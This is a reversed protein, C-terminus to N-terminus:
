WPVWLFFVEDKDLNLKTRAPLRRDVHVVKRDVSTSEIGLLKELLRVYTEGQFTVTIPGAIVTEAACVNNPRSQTQLNTTEVAARAVGRGYSDSLIRQKFRNFIYPTTHPKTSHHKTTDRLQTGLDSMGKQMEKTENVAVPGRKNAYDHAYGCQSDQAVQAAYVLDADNEDCCGDGVCLEDNHTAPTIPIRYPVQVDSNCRMSVLLAPHTQNVWEENREGKMSGIANRAGKTPLDCQEAIGRCVVAPQKLTRAEGDRPYRSKCKKPDDKCKCHTLPKRVGDDGKIHVHHQRLEQVRQIDARYSEAYLDGRFFSPESMYTPKSLLTSRNAYEPWEDERADRSAHAAEIDDYTTKCVHNVYGLYEAVITNQKIDRLKRFIDYLPMHQHLCQIFLQLHLHLAGAKQNEISGFVADARGFVGGLVTASSGRRDQCPPGKFNESNCDPCYPCIRVGFVHCLVLRCLVRFGDSCCLPDRAVISRRTKFDPAYDCLDSVDFELEAFDHDISPTDQRLWRGSGDEAALAPDCERVRALRIMLLSDKENPSFTVFISQGYVISYSWLRWRMLRRVEQTGEVRMSSHTVAGLLKKAAATLGQCRWVKTMDGAVKKNKGDYDTYTGSCLCHLIQKAGQEADDATLDALNKNSLQFSKTQNVTTRFCLNWMAFGLLWDRGCHSEVRRSMAKCWPKLEVMPADRPRGSGRPPADNAPETGLRPEQVDGALEMGPYLERMAGAPEAGLRAEASADVGRLPQREEVAQSAEERGIDPMGAGYKFVFPFASAFFSPKFQDILANGTRAVYEPLMDSVRLKQIQDFLNAHTDAGIGMALLAEADLELLRRGDVGHEQLTNGIGDSLHAAAWDKVESATWQAVNGLRDYGDNKMPRSSAARQLDSLRQLMDSQPEANDSNEAISSVTQRLSSLRQENIDAVDAGSREQLVAHPRIDNFASQATTRGEVPTAAKQPRLKDISGDNGLVAFLQPPVADVPLVAARKHVEREDVASYAPHGRAKADLILKVVVARRVRAAYICSKLMSTHDGDEAASTKLLVRVLDALEDGTRPVQARREAIDEFQELLQEWPLPFCTVNGRAGVRHRNMNVDTGHMSGFRYELSFCIMCTYCVSACIMEMVTIGGEYLTTHGTMDKINMRTYYESHPEGIWMGNALAQAPLRKSQVSKHCVRCIPINCDLCLTRPTVERSCSKCRIDEPCCMIHMPESFADSSFVCTWRQLEADYEDMARQTQLKPAFRTKYTQMGYNDELEAESMTAIPTDQLTRYSIDKATESAIFAYKQACFFCVITSVNEDTLANSWDKLCRRDIQPCAIPAQSQCKMSVAECYVLKRLEKGKHAKTWCMNQRWFTQLKGAEMSPKMDEDHCELLHECLDAESDGTWCCADFACHAAPLAEINEWCQSMDNSKWPNAVDFPLTPNARLKMALEQVRQSWVTRPDVDEEGAQVPRVTFALFHKTPDASSPSPPSAATRRRKNPTGDACSESDAPPRQEEGPFEPSEWPVPDDLSPPEPSLEQQRDLYSLHQQEWSEMSESGETMREDSITAEPSPECQRGLVAHYQREVSDMSDSEPLDDVDISLSESPPRMQEDLYNDYQLDFSFPEEIDPSPTEAPLQMQMELYSRYAVEESDVSRGGDSRDESQLTPTSPISIAADAPQVGEQEYLAMYVQSAQGKCCFQRLEDQTAVRRLSDNYVWWIDEGQTSRHRALTYYHGARATAGSHCVVACLSYGRGAVLIAHEPRVAIDVKHGKSDWLKFSICMIRPLRKFARRKTLKVNAGCISGPCVSEVYTDATSAEMYHDLAQQTTTLVRSDATKVALMLTTCADGMGLARHAKCGECTMHEQEVGTFLTLTGVDETCQPRLESRTNMDDIVTSLFESADEQAGKYFRHSGAFVSPDIADGASSRILRLQRRILGEAGDDSGRHSLLPLAGLASVTANIFCSNGRNRLPRTLSPCLASPAIGSPQRSLLTEADRSM